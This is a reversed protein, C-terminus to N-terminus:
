RNCANIVAVEQRRVKGGKATFIQQKGTHDLGHIVMARHEFVPPTHGMQRHVIAAIPTQVLRDGAGSANGKERAIQQLIDVIFVGAIRLSPQHRKGLLGPSHRVPRVAIQQQIITTLLRFCLRLQQLNKDVLGAM